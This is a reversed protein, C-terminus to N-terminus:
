VLRARWLWTQTWVAAQELDGEEVRAAIEPLTRLRSSSLRLAEAHM